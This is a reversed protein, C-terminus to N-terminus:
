GSHQRGCRKGASAPDGGHWLAATPMRSALKALPHTWSGDDRAHAVHELPLAWGAALHLHMEAYGSCPRVTQLGTHRLLRHLRNIHSLAVHFAPLVSRYHPSSADAEHPAIPLELPNPAELLAHLKGSAPVYVGSLRMLTDAEGMYPGDRLMM